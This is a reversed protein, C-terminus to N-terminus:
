QFDALGIGGEDKGAINKNGKTWNSSRLIRRRKSKM